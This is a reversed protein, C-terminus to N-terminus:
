IVSGGDVAGVESQVGRQHIGLNAIGFSCTGCNEAWSGFYIFVYIYIYINTYVCM